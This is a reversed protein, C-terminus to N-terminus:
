PSDMQSGAVTTGNGERAGRGAGQRQGREALLKRKFEPTPIGSLQQQALRRATADDGEAEEGGRGAVARPPQAAKLGAFGDGSAKTSNQSIAPATLLFTLCAAFLCRVLLKTMRASSRFNRPRRGFM